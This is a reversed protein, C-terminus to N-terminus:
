EIFLCGAIGDAFLKGQQTLIIHNNQLIVQQQKVFPKVALLTQGALKPGYKKKIKELDIGWMTRISTMVYENFQDTLSLLEYQENLKGEFIHNIYQANNAINFYRKKGDFGHASPGIGVYVKGRWYNTNHIAHKNPQGYNSIEYHDYGAATLLNSLLLFQRASQEDNLSLQKKTNIAHALATKEEITLSYASIHPVKLNVAKEVNKQLKQDSLLHYGFILDININDFGADLAIKISNEAENAHHARNMWILDEEYFSQIGISFRNVPLKKLTKIKEKTLDDPNAELTIEANENVSFNQYITEFIENLKDSTLVSPTGGGFYITELPQAIRNKKLKIEQCLAQVLEKQYKLSTTFHFGCYACAKKCFPIHIYIGAM